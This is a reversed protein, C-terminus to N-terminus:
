ATLTTWNPLATVQLAKTMYNPIGLSTTPSFKFMLTGTQNDDAPHEFDFHVGNCNNMAITKYNSGNKAQIYIAKNGAASNTAYVGSANTGYIMADWIDPNTDVDPIVSLEVEIQTQPKEKDVFGGFVPVTEIDDEGGSKSYDSIQGSIYGLNSGNYTTSELIASPNTDAPVVWIKVKSRSIAM